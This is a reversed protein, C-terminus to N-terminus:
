RSRAKGGIAAPAIPGSGDDDDDQGHHDGGDGPRRGCRRSESTKRERERKDLVAALRERRITEITSKEETNNSGRVRVTANRAEREYNATTPSDKSLFLANQGNLHMLSSWSRVPFSGERQTYHSSYHLRENTTRDYTACLTEDRPPEELLTHSRRHATDNKHIFEFFELRFSTKRKRKM